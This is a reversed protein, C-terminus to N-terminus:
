PRCSNARALGLLFDLYDFQGIKFFYQKKFERDQLMYNVLVIVKHGTMAEYGSVHFDVLPLQFEIMLINITEARVANFGIFVSLICLICIRLM